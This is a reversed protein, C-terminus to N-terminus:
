ARAAGTSSARSWGRGPRCRRLRCRHDAPGGAGRRRRLAPLRGGPRAPDRGPADLTRELDHFTPWVTGEHWTLNVTGPDIDLYRLGHSALDLEDMVPTSRFSIHDCNCINVRAGFVDESSACGGVTERAEYLVTRLGARALYAACVLGNHGGGIVIADM